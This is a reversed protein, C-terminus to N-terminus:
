LELIGLAVCEAVVVLCAVLAIFLSMLWAERDSIGYVRVFPDISPNPRPPASMDGAEKGGGADDAVAM